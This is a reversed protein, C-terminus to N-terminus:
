AASTPRRRRSRTAGNERATAAKRSAPRSSGSASCGITNRLRIASVHPSRFVSTTSATQPKRLSPMGAASERMERQPARRPHRQASVSRDFQIRLRGFRVKFETHHQLAFFSKGARRFCELSGSFQSRLIGHRMIAESTQIRPCAVRCLSFGLARQVLLECGFLFCAQICRCAAVFCRFSVTRGHCTQRAAREKGCRRSARRPCLASAAAGM